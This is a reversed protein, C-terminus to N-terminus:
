FMDLMENMVTKHIINSKRPKQIIQADIENVVLLGIHYKKLLSKPIRHFFEHWIAIYVEHACLRCTLAQQLARKWNEVKVEIAVVKKKKIAIIDISRSLVKVEKHYQYGGKELFKEIAPYLELEKIMECGWGM